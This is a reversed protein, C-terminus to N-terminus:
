QTAGHDHGGERLLKEEDFPMPVFADRGLMTEMWVKWDAFRAILAVDFVTAVKLLTAMTSHLVKEPNELRAVVPQSTEMLESLRAQSWGRHSRMARIQWALTLGIVAAMMKHREDKESFELLEWLSTNDDHVTM